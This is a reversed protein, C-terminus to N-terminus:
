PKPRTIIRAVNADLESSSHLGFVRSAVTGDSRLFFTLPIARVGYATAVAGSEDTGVPWDVRLRKAFEKSDNPADQYTMGVIRVGRAAYKRRGERLIPQEKECPHCWSAFFTLVVPHGRYAALDVPGGHLGPVRFSPATKGVELAGHVITAKPDATTSSSGRTAVYATIGGIVAVTAAIM